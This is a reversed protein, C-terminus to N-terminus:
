NGYNRTKVEEIFNIKVDTPQAVYIPSTDLGRYIGKTLASSIKKVDSDTYIDVSIIMRVTKKM